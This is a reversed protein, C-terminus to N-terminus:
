MLGNAAIIIKFSTTYFNDCRAQRLALFLDEILEPLCYFELQCFNVNLFIHTANNLIYSFSAYKTASRM